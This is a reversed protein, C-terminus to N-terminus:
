LGTKRLVMIFGGRSALSATLKDNNTIKYSKYSIERDHSGDCFEEVKWSSNELFQPRFVFSRNSDEGNIGAIFYDEGHKRALVIYKGPFGEIFWTDDWTVPLDSLFKKVEPRQNLYSERRDALHQIGSEFVVSLALEHANSTLHKIESSYDSFCVPTYDMSGLVNRTFPYITNQLLAEEPFKHWSYLEGGRVAEMTIFNPFTLSWGRPITCGHTFFLLKHRAADKAIDQYLQIIEQKEGQFFDVKIGKVGLAAIRAMERNRIEADFMLDRPGADMVRTHPGGSNYWILLGVKKSNAYEALKELSGGEMIHWDADVLSYEWGMEAALDVYEKLKVFNKGSTHDSWWSWSSRGPKVWNYESHEPLPSLHHVLNSEVIPGLDKSVMIFRWPSSWPFHIEPITKGYGYNEWDFPYEIRYLGNECNAALHSGAFNGMDAESILVWAGPTQFLAPFGWGTTMPPPTGAAIASLYGYEYAPSWTNLTDYPQIWALSATDVRFGTNESLVGASPDNGEPIVYRFAIGENYARIELSLAEGKGNRLNIFGENYSTSNNLRKGTLMTYTHSKLVPPTVSILKLNNTFDSSTTMIGLPSSLIVPIQESSDDINVNYSLSGDAPDLIIQVEPTGSPAKLTFVEVDKKCSFLFLFVALVILIFPTKM